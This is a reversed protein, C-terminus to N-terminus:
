PDAKPSSRLAALRQALTAHSLEGVRQDVLRGQADFFLTTPLGSQNFASGAQGKPDLLVNRLDLRHSTLFRQVKDSSEGQNLFVFHLDPHDAQARQLVPMERRCPPCWTAWLNVVTPKGKFSTLSATQGNFSAFAIAPLQTKHQPLWLLAISGGIWVASACAMATLLPKRLVPDRRVLILAYAWAAIVGIQSDWGGDRIDIVALIDLPASFYAARYQWVFALRAVVVAVLGIRLTQPQVDIGARLGVRQAIWLGLASAGLMLLLSFPLVLPGVQLVTSM